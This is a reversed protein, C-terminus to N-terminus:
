VQTQECFYTYGGGFACDLVLMGPKLVGEMHADYLALGQTASTTNAYDAIAHYIISQYGAKQLRKEIAQNLKKRKQQQKKLRRLIKIQWALFYTLRLKLSGHGRSSM